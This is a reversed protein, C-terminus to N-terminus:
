RVPYTEKMRKIDDLLLKAEEKSLLSTIQITKWIEDSTDYSFSFGFAIKEEKRAISIRINPEMFSSIFSEENGDVIIAFGDYLENLEETLLAPASYAEYVEGDTYTIRCVLWNADYNYEDETSAEDSFQYSEIEFEIRENNNKLIM